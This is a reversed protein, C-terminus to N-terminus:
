NPLKDINIHSLSFRGVDTKAYRSLSSAKVQLLDFEKCMDNSVITKCPIMCQLWKM